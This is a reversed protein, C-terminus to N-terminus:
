EKGSSLKAQYTEYLRNITAIDRASLKRLSYTEGTAFFMVDDNNASHGKLGLAHGIEHLCLAAMVKDSLIAGTTPDIFCLRIEAHTLRCLGHKGRVYLRHAEGQEAGQLTLDKTTSTWTCVIDADAPNSVTQASLYNRAASIWDNFSTILIQTFSNRFGPINEGSPIFIKLPMAKKPWLEVRDAIIDKFYDPSDKDERPLPTQSRNLSNLTALVVNRNPENPFDSVYKTLYKKAQEVDGIHEYCCGLNYITNKNQPDLDLSIKHQELAADFNGMRELLGGFCTHLNALDSAPIDKIALAQEYLAKADDYQNAKTLEIAKACLSSALGRKATLMDPNIQLAKNLEAIADDWKGTTEFLIGLNTHVNVSNANPDLLCAKKYLDLAQDFNGAHMLNTAQNCLTGAENSKQVYAYDHSQALVTGPLLSIVLALVSIAIQRNMCQIM